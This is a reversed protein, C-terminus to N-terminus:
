AQKKCILPQGITYKISPHMGNLLNLLLDKDSSEPLLVIGDDMYRYFQEEIIQCTNKEFKSPLLVPFLITEELFGVVLCAYSPAFITGMATGMLQQYM